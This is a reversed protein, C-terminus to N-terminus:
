FDADWDVLISGADIDVQLVHRGTVFPILREHGGDRVLLVANAGTEFLREVRGLAEGATNVVALGELDTWYYEGPPLDPLQERQVLIEAGILAAAVDRDDVGDILAVIKDARMVSRARVVREVGDHRLIWPQYDFISGRPQTHSEIKVGGRIGHLGTVRGLLVRRGASDM